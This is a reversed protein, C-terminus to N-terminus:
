FRVLPPPPSAPRSAPPPPPPPPRPPPQHHPLLPPPPLLPPGGIQGRQASEKNLTPIRVAPPPEIRKPTKPTKAEKKIPTTDATSAKDKEEQAEAALREGLTIGLTTLEEEITIIADQIGTIKTTNIIKDQKSLNSTSQSQEIKVKAEKYEQLAFTLLKIKENVNHQGLSKAEHAIGLNTYADAHEPNIKIAQNYVDIAADFDGKAKHAIGLNIYADAYEPNIEIAQKYADIAADFDGKAKLALGLNNHAKANESDKKIIEQYVKIYADDPSAKLALDLDTYTRVNTPSKEIIKQYAAIANRLFDDAYNMGVSHKKLNNSFNLQADGYKKLNNLFILQSDGRSNGSQTPLPIQMLELANDLSEDAEDKDHKNPSNYLSISLNLYNNAGRPGTDHTLLEKIHYNIAKHNTNKRRIKKTINYVGERRRRRTKSKTKGIRNGREGRAEEHTSIKAQAAATDNPADGSASWNSRKSLAVTLDDPFVGIVRQTGNYKVLDAGGKM